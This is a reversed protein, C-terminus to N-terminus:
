LGGLGRREGGYGVKGGGMLGELEAGGTGMVAKPGTERPVARGGSM